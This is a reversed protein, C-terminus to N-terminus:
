GGGLAQVCHIKEVSLGPLFRARPNSDSGPLAIGLFRCTAFALAVSAPIRLALAPLGAGTSAANCSTSASGTGINTLLQSPLYRPTLLAQSSNKPTDRALKRPLCTLSRYGCFGAIASFCM